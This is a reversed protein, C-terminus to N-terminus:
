TRAPPSDDIHDVGAQVVSNGLAIDFFFQDNGSGGFLHDDEEGGFLKDNGSNGKILDDGHRGKLMDNDDGGFFKDDGRGGLFKDNGGHGRFTYLADGGPADFVDRDDSGDIVVRPGFAGFFSHLLGSFDDHKILENYPADLDPVDIDYGTGEAVLTGHDFVKIGTVTGSEPGSIGDGDVFDHGTFVVKLGGAGIVVKSDTQNIINSTSLADEMTQLFDFDPNGHHITWNRPMPRM